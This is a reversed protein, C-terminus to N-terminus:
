LLGAEVGEPRGLLIEKCNGQYEVEEREKIKEKDDDNDIKM